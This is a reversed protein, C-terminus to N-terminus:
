EKLPAVPLPLEPTVSFSVLISGGPPRGPWVFKIALVAVVRVQFRSRLQHPPSQQTKRDVEDRDSVASVRVARRTGPLLPVLILTPPFRKRPPTHSVWAGGRENVM